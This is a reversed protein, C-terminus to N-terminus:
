EEDFFAESFSKFGMSRTPCTVVCLQCISCKEKNFEVTMEPRNIHLAGTPCVATCAGCHICIDDNRNIDQDASQVSVGHNKLFEVGKKYNSKRTGSLELVM